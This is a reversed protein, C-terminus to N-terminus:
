RARHAYATALRAALVPIQATGHLEGLVVLRHGAAHEAVQAAAGAIAPAQQGHLWHGGGDGAALASGVIAVGAVWGMLWQRM